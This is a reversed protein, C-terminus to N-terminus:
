EPNRFSRVKRIRRREQEGGLAGRKKFGGGGPDQFGGFDKKIKKLIERTRETKRWGGEGSLKEM